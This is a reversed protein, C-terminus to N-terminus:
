WLAPHSAMRNARADKEERVSANPLALNSFDPSPSLAFGPLIVIGGGGEAGAV